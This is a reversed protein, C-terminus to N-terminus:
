LWTLNLYKLADLDIDVINNDQVVLWSLHTLDKLAGAGIEKLKNNTLFSFVFFL